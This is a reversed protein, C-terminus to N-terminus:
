PSPARSDRAGPTIHSPTSPHDPTPTNPLGSPPAPSLAALAEDIAQERTNGKSRDGRIQMMRDHDFAWGRGTMIQGMTLTIMWRRLNPKRPSSAPMETYMTPTHCTSSPHPPHRELAVIIVADMVVRLVDRPYAMGDTAMHACVANLGGEIPALMGQPLQQHTYSPPVCVASRHAIHCAILALHRDWHPALTRVTELTSARIAMSDSHQDPFARTM